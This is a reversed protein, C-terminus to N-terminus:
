PKDVQDLVIDVGAAGPEVAGAHAGRVDGPAPVNVMGSKRLLAQVEVKGTFFKGPMLVDEQGLSYQLPFRMGVIKLVALPPGGAEGAPRAVIFLTDSAGLKAQREAPLSITGSVANNGLADCGLLALALIPALVSRTIM